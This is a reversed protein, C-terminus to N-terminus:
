FVPPAFGFLSRVAQVSCAQVGFPKSYDTFSGLERDRSKPGALREDWESALISEM